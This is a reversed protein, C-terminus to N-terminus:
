FGLGSFRAGSSAGKGNQQWVTLSGSPDVHPHEQLTCLLTHPPPHHHPICLVNYVTPAAYPPSAPCPRASDRHSARLPRISGHSPHLLPTPSGFPHRCGLQLPGGIGPSANSSVRPGLLACHQTQSRPIFSLSLLVFWCSKFDPCLNRPSYLARILVPHGPSLSGVPEQDGKGRTSGRSAGGWRRELPSLKLGRRKELM